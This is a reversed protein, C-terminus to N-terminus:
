WLLYNILFSITLNFIIKSNENSFFTCSLKEDVNKDISLSTFSLYLKHKRIPLSKADSCMKKM